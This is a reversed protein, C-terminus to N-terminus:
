NDYEKDSAIEHDRNGRESRRRAVISLVALWGIVIKKGLLWNSALIGHREAEEISEGSL